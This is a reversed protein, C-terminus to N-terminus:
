KGEYVQAACDFDRLRKRTDEDVKGKIEDFKEAVELPDNSNILAKVEDALDNHGRERLESEYWQLVPPLLCMRCEKDTNKDGEIWEKMGTINACTDKPM